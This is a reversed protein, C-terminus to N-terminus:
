ELTDSGIKIDGLTRFTLRAGITWDSGSEDDSDRSDTYAITFITCEDDYSLGITRRSIVDNNLDWAIGGFISWYDKFK